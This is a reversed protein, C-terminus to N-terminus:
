NEGYSVKGMKPLTTHIKWILGYFYIFEWRFIPVCNKGYVAYKTSASTTKAYSNTKSPTLTNSSHITKRPSSPQLGCSLFRQPNNKLVLNITCLFQFNKNDTITLLIDFEELEIWPFLKQSLFIIIYKDNLLHIPIFYCM